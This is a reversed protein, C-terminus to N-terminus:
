SATKITASTVKISDAFERVLEDIIEKYNDM